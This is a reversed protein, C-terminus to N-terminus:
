PSTGARKTTAATRPQSDGAAKVSLNAWFAGQGKCGAFTQFRAPGAAAAAGDFTRARPSDRTSEDQRMCNRDASPGLQRRAPALKGRGSSPRGVGFRSHRRRAPASQGRSRIPRLRRSPIRGHLRHLSVSGTESRGATRSSRRSRARPVPLTGPWGQRHRRPDLSGKGAPRRRRTVFAGTPPEAAQPPASVRLM